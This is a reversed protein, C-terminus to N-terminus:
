QPAIFLKRFYSLSSVCEYQKLKFCFMYIFMHPGIFMTICVCVCMNNKSLHLFHNEGM